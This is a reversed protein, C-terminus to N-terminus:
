SFLVVEAIVEHSLCLLISTPVLLCAFGFEMNVIFDTEAKMAQSMGKLTKTVMSHSQEIASFSIM